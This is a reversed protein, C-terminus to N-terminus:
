DSVLTKQQKALSHCSSSEEEIQGKSSNKRESKDPVRVSDFVSRYSRRNFTHPTFNKNPVNQSSKKNHVITKRNKPMM